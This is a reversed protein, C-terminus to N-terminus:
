SWPMRFDETTHGEMTTGIVVLSVLKEVYVGVKSIVKWRKTRETGVKPIFGAVLYTM